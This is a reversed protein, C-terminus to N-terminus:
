SSKETENKFHNGLHVRYCSLYLVIDESCMSYHAQGRGHDIRNTVNSVEECHENLEIKQDVSNSNRRM